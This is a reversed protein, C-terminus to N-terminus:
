NFWTQSFDFFSHFCKGIAQTGVTKELEELSERTNRNSLLFVSFMNEIEKLFSWSLFLSIVQKSWEDFFEKARVMMVDVAQALETNRDVLLFM